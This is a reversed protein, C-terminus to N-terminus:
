VEDDGLAPPTQLARQEWEDEQQWDRILWVGFAGVRDLVDPTPNDGEAAVLSRALTRALTRTDYEDGTAKECALSADSLRDELQAVIWEFRERGM